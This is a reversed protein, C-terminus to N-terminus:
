EEMLLLVTYGDAAYVPPAAQVWSVQAYRELEENSLLVFANQPRPATDADRRRLWDYLDFAEMSQVTPEGYRGVTLMQLQGNSLETLVNANWFTAYGAEYGNETLWAAAAQRGGNRHTALMDGYQAAAICLMGAVFVALAAAAAPASIKQLKQACFALIPLFLLVTLMNYRATYYMDTFLFLLAHAALSVYFFASLVVAPRAFGAPRRLIHAAAWFSGACLVLSFLNGPAAASVAPAGDVFGFLGPLDGLMAHANSWSFPTFHLDDFEGFAFWRPLVLHNCALGAAAGALALLSWGLAPAANLGRLAKFGGSFDPLIGKARLELLALLALAGALPLYLEILERVGGLGVGFSLLALAAAQAKRRAGPLARCLRFLLGFTLFAYIMYPIYGLNQFVYQAYAGSLPLWLMPAAWLGWRGLGAGRAFYLFSATVLGMLVALGIIRVTHWSSFIRCLPALVLQTNLVRLETSYYWNRSILGGEGALQHALVMESADDSDIWQGSHRYFILLCALACVALLALPLLRRVAGRGRKGAAGAANQAPGKQHPTEATQRAGAPQKLLQVM